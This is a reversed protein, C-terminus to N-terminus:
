MMIWKDMWKKEFEQIYPSNYFMKRNEKLERKIFELQKKCNDLSNSEIKNCMSIMYSWESYKAFDKLEPNIKAIYESRERFAEFYEELQESTLLKDNNTFASINRGHRVACYNKEPCVAVRKAHIFLKYTIFIDEHVADERFDVQEFLERKFLKNPLGSNCEKRQLLRITAEKGDFIEEKDVICNDEIQGNVSRVSSGYVIDAEYKEALTIFNELYTNKVWDDDDVFTIYAGKSIEVGVKRGVAISSKPISLINIQNNKESYQQLIEQTGDCSGNDIVIFEYDKYTQALIADIMKSLYKERNYTLMIVSIKKNKQEDIIDCCLREHQNEVIKYRYRFEEDSVKVKETKWLAAADVMYSEIQQEMIKELTTVDTYGKEWEVIRNIAKQMNWVPKWGFTEKMKNCNLKLLGAEHPGGDKHNVYSLYEGVQKEWEELLMKVIQVTTCCDKEDPGVNYSGALKEDEYQRKAIMLYAMIPELVHQYPRVSEPNRLVIKRKQEAARICDPIIRDKAFDGGGIVNGARVTSIAINRDRFFSKRYSDTVLESCSKSNSYPDYGNLPQEETYGMDIEQNLYVKDTTVNVVSKVTETLRICEMVNVTGMVNTEYTLVPQEYSTRVLPQAAMHIVIEPQVKEFVERLHKLDRVDGNISNIKEELKCIRFLSPETPSELAYGTIEAGAMLLVMCMWSGKFGTHGTILVKKGNYFELM